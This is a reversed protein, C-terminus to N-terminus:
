GFAMKKAYNHKERKVKATSPSNIFEEITLLNVPRLVVRALRDRSIPHQVNIWAEQAEQNTTPYLITATGPKEQSFAYMALQYTIDRPLSKEWLDRYKADLLAVVQHDKIIAFDPRITVARRQQPNYQPDYALMDSLQFEGQVVYDLLNETLFRFLLAQYFRNMDFLFGPVRIDDEKSDLSIGQSSFLIEIISLTPRYIATLRNTNIQANQVLSSTLKISSVSQELIQSIKRLETRLIVDNTLRSGLKLGALLTRNLLNNEIRLYHRCFLSAESLGGANAYRNFDIRGKPSQLNEGICEYNRFLGRGLISKAEALLQIILIEQFGNEKLDFITSDFVELKRWDFAYRLLNLLRFNDIQPKITIRITGIHVTGVYQFTRIHLGNLLELIEIKGSKNLSNIQKRSNPDQDLFVGSVIPCSEPTIKQWEELPIHLMAQTRSRLNNTKVM